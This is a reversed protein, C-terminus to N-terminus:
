SVSLLLMLYDTDNSLREAPAIRVAARMVSAKIEACSQWHILIIKIESVMKANSDTDPGHAESLSTAWIRKQGKRVPQKGNAESM